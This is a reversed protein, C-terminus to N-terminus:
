LTTTRLNTPGPKVSAPYFNEAFVEPISSYQLGWKRKTVTWGLLCGLSHPIRGAPTDPSSAPLIAVAQAITDM